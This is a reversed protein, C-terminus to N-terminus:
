PTSKDAHRQSREAVLYARCISALAAGTKAMTDDDLDANNALQLTVARLIIALEGRTVRGPIRHVPEVPAPEIRRATADHLDNTHKSM